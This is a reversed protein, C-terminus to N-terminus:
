HRVALCRARDIVFSLFLNEILSIFHLCSPALTLHATFDSDMSSDLSRGWWGYGSGMFGVDTKRLKRSAGLGHPVGGSIKGPASTYVELLTESRVQRFDCWIKQSVGKLGLQGM